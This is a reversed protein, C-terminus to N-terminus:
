VKENCTAIELLVYGRMVLNMHIVQALYDTALCFVLVSTGTEGDRGSKLVVMVKREWVAM